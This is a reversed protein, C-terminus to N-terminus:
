SSRNEIWDLAQDIRQLTMDKGVFEITVDIGPSVTGGTLAVRVPQAITGFGIERREVISSIEAHISTSDWEVM